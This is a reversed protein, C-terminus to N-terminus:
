IELALLLVRSLRPSCSRIREMSRADARESEFLDPIGDCDAIVRRPGDYLGPLSHIFELAKDSTM